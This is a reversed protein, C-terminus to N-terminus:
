KVINVQKVWRTTSMIYLFRDGAAATTVATGTSDYADALGMADIRFEVLDGDNPGTPLTDVRVPLKASTIEGQMTTKALAQGSPIRGHTQGTTIMRLRSLIPSEGSDEALWDVPADLSERGGVDSATQAAAQMPLRLLAGSPTRTFAPNGSVDVRHDTAAKLMDGFTFTVQQTDSM